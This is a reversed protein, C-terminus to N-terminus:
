VLASTYGAVDNFAQAATVTVYGDNAGDNGAGDVGWPNRLRVATPTGSADTLVQDVTYAHASLLPAGDTVDSTGLAVAKGAALEHQMQKLLTTGDPAYYVSSSNGGLASFAEDMWGSNLSLYSNAGTRFVAYAKELIAVWTSGGAGLGAYELTSGDLTPLEGDVRVFSRTSGRTFQVLYTGDGMDLVSQRIRWPDVKATASLSALFYCDGLNGQVIDNESPGADSFLPNNSFDVYSGLGDTGPEPLARVSLAKSIRMQTKRGRARAFLANVRHVDGASTEAPTLDTIREANANADTWFTDQGGGGTLTDRTSGITDLVDDGAGGNLVNRGAGGYLTDNGSGGVLTDNGAGGYLICDTTVSPNVVISDNGAGGNVLISKFNGPVTDSWGGTNAVVLGDAAQRLTIQDNGSTGTIKLQTGGVVDVTEIALPVGSLLMRSELGEVVASATRRLCSRM